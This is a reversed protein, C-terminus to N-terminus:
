PRDSPQWQGFYSKSALAAASAPNGACPMSEGRNANGLNRAAKSLARQRPSGRRKIVVRGTIPGIRDVFRPSSALSPRPSLAPELSQPSGIRRDRTKPLPTTPPARWANRRLVPYQAQPTRTRHPPPAPLSD